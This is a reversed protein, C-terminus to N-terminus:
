LRVEIGADDLLSQLLHITWPHTSRTSLVGGRDNGFSLNLGTFGNEPVEVRDLGRADALAIALAYFHIARTRTTNERRGATERLVIRVRERDGGNTTLWSWSRNQAGTVIPNDTHSLFLGDPTTLIAASFSDLGGSLLAVAGASTPALATQ